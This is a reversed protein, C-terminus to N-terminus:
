STGESGPINPDGHRRRRIRSIRSGGELRNKERPCQRTELLEFVRPTVPPRTHVTLFRSEHSIPKQDLRTPSVGMEWVSKLHEQVVVFIDRRQRYVLPLENGVAM